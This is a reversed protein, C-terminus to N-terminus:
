RQKRRRPARHDGRRVVALVAAEIQPWEDHVQRYSLRLVVFGREVLRRDRRRDSEYADRDSHHERSDCEIVLRDGVLLDVRVGEIVRVQIKVRIGLRRLRLRVMSETGSEARGDARELLRRIRAPACASWAALEEPTALRRHLLSDAIVIVEEASGCRLACRFATELSDLASSVAPQAGYPRCGNRRHRPARVHWGKGEPVWAGRLRLASFCSVCGGAAVAAIAQSPAASGFWGPRIRQLLGQRVAREIGWKTWGLLSLQSTTLIGLQLVLPDIM